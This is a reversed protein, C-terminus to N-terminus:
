TVFPVASASCQRVCKWVVVANLLLKPAYHYNYTGGHKVNLFETKQVYPANIHKVSIESCVAIVLIERCLM